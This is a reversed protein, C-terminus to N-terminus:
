KCRQENMHVKELTRKKKKKKCINAHKFGIFNSLIHFNRHTELLSHLRGQSMETYTRYMIHNQQRQIM